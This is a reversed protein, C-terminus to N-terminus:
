HFPQIEGPGKIRFAMMKLLYLSVDPKLCKEESTPPFPSSFTCLSSPSDIPIKSLFTRASKVKIVTRKAM